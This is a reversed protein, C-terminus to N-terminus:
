KFEKEIEGGVKAYRLFVDMKPRGMEMATKLLAPAKQILSAM